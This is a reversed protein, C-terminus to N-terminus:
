IREFNPRASAKRGGKRRDELLCCTTKFPNTHVSGYTTNTSTKIPASEVHDCLRSPSHGGSPPKRRIRTMMRMKNKDSRIQIVFTM